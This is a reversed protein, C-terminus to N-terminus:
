FILQDSWSSVPNNLKVIYLGPNCILDSINVFGSNNERTISNYKKLLMGQINYISVSLNNGATEPVTFVLSNGKIRVNLEKDSDPNLHLPDIIGTIDNKILEVEGSDPIVSFMLYKVGSVETISSNVDNGNQIVNISVWGEPLTRRITVPINFIDNKLTDSVTLTILDDQISTEKVTLSNREKIYRAVTGFDAVWFLAENNKLYQLSEKLIDSSLPSYGGDNDIGHILYVLWGSKKAANTAQTQFNATTKVPGQDGCILSSVNMFNGPTKPEIFGQCGRVAIFRSKCLSANALACYPYAMTFCVESDIKDNILASCSDLETEQIDVALQSLNPHTVTHNAIEHGGAAASKILEWNTIWDTVIFLTLKYGFEDFIPIAKAFQNSCGDDFTYSVAATKFDPWNAIEYPSDINQSFTSLSLSILLFSTVIHFPLNM